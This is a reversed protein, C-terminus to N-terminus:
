LADVGVGCVNHSIREVGWGVGLLVLLFVLLLLWTIPPTSISNRIGDMVVVVYGGRLSSTCSPQPSDFTAGATVGYTTTSNIIIISGIIAVGM